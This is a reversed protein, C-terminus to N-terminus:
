SFSFFCLDKKGILFRKIKEILFGQAQVNQNQHTLVFSM